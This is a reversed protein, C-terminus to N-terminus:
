QAHASMVLIISSIAVWQFNPATLTKKQTADILMSIDTFLMNRFIILYETTSYKFNTDTSDARRGVDQALQRIENGFYKVWVPRNKPKKDVIYIGHSSRHRWWYNRKRNHNTLWATDHFTGERIPNGPYTQCFNRKSKVIEQTCKKDM